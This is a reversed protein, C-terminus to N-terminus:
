IPEKGMLIEKEFQERTYMPLYSDLRSLQFVTLIEPNLEWFICQINNKRSLNYLRLLSGIGSSDIYDLDRLNFAIVQPHKDLQSRFFGEVQRISSIQYRGRVEISIIGPYQILRTEIM